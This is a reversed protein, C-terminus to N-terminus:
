STQLNKETIRVFKLSNEKPNYDYLYWEFDKRGEISLESVALTTERNQIGTVLVKRIKAQPHQKKLLGSYRLVQEVASKGGGKNKLELIILEEKTEGLFDLRDKTGKPSHQRTVSEIGLEKYLEHKEIHDELLKEKSFLVGLQKEDFKNIRVIETWKQKLTIGPDLYFGFEKISENVWTVNQVTRRGIGVNKMLTSVRITRSGNDEVSKRISNLFRLMREEKPVVKKKRKRSNNAAAKKAKRYEKWIGKELQRLIKLM